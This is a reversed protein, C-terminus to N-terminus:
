VDDCCTSTAVDYHSTSATVDGIRISAQSGASATFAMSALVAVLFATRRSTKTM